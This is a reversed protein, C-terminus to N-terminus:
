DIAALHHARIDTAEPLAAAQGLLSKRLKRPEMPRVHTRDLAALPVHRDVVDAPQCVGEACVNPVEERRKFDVMGGPGHPGAAHDGRAPSALQALSKAPAM